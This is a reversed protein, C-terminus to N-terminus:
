QPRQWMQIPMRSLMSQEDPDATSQREPGNHANGPSGSEAVHQVFQPVEVWDPQRDCEAHLECRIEAVDDRVAFHRTDLATGPEPKSARPRVDGGALAREHDATAEHDVALSELCGAEIRTLCPRTDEAEAHELVRNERRGGRQGRHDEERAPRRMRTETERKRPHNGDREPEGGGERGQRVTVAHSFFAAPAGPQLVREVGDVHELFECRLSRFIAAGEDARRKVPDAIDAAEPRAQTCEM